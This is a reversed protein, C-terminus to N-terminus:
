RAVEIRSHATVSTELQGFSSVVWASVRVVGNNPHSTHGYPL